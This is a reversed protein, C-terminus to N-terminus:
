SLYILAELGKTVKRKASESVFERLVMGIQKSVEWWEEVKAARVVMWSQLLVSTQCWVSQSEMVKLPGDELVDNTTLGHRHLFPGNPILALGAAVLGKGSIVLDPKGISDYEARQHAWPAGCRIATLTEDVILLVDLERCNDIISKWQTETM